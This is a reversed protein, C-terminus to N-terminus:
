DRVFGEDPKASNMAIISLIRMVSYLPLLISIM